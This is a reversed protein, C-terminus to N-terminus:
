RNPVTILQSAQGTATREDKDKNAELDVKIFEPKGAISQAPKIQYEELKNQSTWVYLWGSRLQRLNYNRSNLTPLLTDLEPPKTLWAQSLGHNSQNTIVKKWDQPQKLQTLDELFPNEDVAYRVPFIKIEKTQNPCQGSGCVTNDHRAKVVDDTDPKSPPTLLCEECTNDGKVIETFGDLTSLDFKAPDTVLINRTAEGDVWYDGVRIEFHFFLDDSNANKINGTNGVYGLKDGRKVIDDVKVSLEKNLHAYITYANKNLNKIRYEIVM